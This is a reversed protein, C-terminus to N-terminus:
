HINQDRGGERATVCCFIQPPQIATVIPCASSVTASLCLHILKSYFIRKFNSISQVYVLSFKYWSIIQWLIWYSSYSRQPPTLWVFRIKRMTTLPFFHPLLHSIPHNEVRSSTIELSASIFIKIVIGMSPPQPHRAHLVRYM